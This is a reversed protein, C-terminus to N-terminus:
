STDGGGGTLKADTVTWKGKWLVHFNYYASGWRSAVRIGIEAEDSSVMRIASLLCKLDGWHYQSVSRVAPGLDSLRVLLEDNLDLEIRGADWYEFGFFWTHTQARGVFYRLVAEFIDDRDESTPAGCLQNQSPTAALERSTVQVPSEHRGSGNSAPKGAPRQDL